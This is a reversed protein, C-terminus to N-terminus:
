KKFTYYLFVMSLVFYVSVVGWNYPDSWNMIVLNFLVTYLFVFGILFLISKWIFKLIKKIM